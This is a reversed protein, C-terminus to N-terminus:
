AAEMQRLRHARDPRAQPIDSADAPSKTTTKKPTAQKRERAKAAKKATPTVDTREAICLAIAEDTWGLRRGMRTVHLSDANHYVWSVSMGLKAATQSINNLTPTSM